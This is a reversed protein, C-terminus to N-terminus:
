RLRDYGAVHEGEIFWPKDCGEKYLRIATDYQSGLTILMALAAVGAGAACTIVKGPVYVLNLAVAGARHADTVEVTPQPPGPDAPAAAQQAAAPLAMPALLFLALILRLWSTTAMTDGGM